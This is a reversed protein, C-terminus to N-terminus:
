LNKIIALFVSAAIGVFTALFAGALTWRTKTVKAAM